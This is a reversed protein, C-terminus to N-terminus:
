ALQRIKVSRVEGSTASVHVERYERNTSGGSMASAIAGPSTGRVFSLTLYWWLGDESLEIEELRLGMLNEQSFMEVVFKIATNVAEKVSIAAM